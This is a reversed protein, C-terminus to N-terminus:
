CHPTLISRVDCVLSKMDKSKTRHLLNRIHTRVTSLSIERKLSIEEPGTGACLDRLIECQTKTLAFIRGFEFVQEETLQCEQRPCVLVFIGLNTPIKRLVVVTDIGDGCIYQTETKRLRTLAIGLHQMLMPDNTHLEGNKVQFNAVNGEVENADATSFRALVAGSLDIAYTASFGKALCHLSASILSDLGPLPKLPQTPYADAPFAKRNTTFSQHLTM